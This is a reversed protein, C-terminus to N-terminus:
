IIVEDADLGIGLTIGVCLGLGLDIGLSEESLKPEPEVAEM